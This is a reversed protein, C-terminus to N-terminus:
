LEALDEPPDISFCDFVRDFHSVCVELPSSINSGHRPLFPAPQPTHFEILPMNGALQLPTQTPFSLNFEDGFHYPEFLVYDDVIMMFAEVSGCLKVQVKGPTAANVERASREFWDLALRINIYIDSSQHAADRAAPASRYAEWGVAARQDGISQYRAFTKQKAATSRPDLILVKVSVGPRRAAEIFAENLEARIIPVNSIGQIMVREKASRLLRELQSRALNASTYVEVIGTRAAGGSIRVPKGSILHAPSAAAYKWLLDFQHVIAASIPSAPEYKMVPLNLGEIARHPQLVHPQVFTTRNASFIFSAPLERCVRLEVSIRDRGEQHNLFPRLRAHVYDFEAELSSQEDEDRSAASSVSDTNTVNVLHAGLSKPDCVLIKISLSETAAPLPVEGMCYRRLQWWASGPSSSLFDGLTIGLIRVESLETQLVAQHMPVAALRRTPFMQAIQLEELTAAKSQKEVFISIESLHQRLVGIDHGAADVAAKVATIDSRTIGERRERQPRRILIEFLAAGVAGTFFNVGFGITIPAWWKATYVKGLWILVAALMALIVAGLWLVRSTLAHLDPDKPNTDSAIM